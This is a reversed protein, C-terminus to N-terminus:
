GRSGALQTAMWELGEILGKGTDASMGVIHWARDEANMLGFLDRIEDMTVARHVNQLPMGKLEVAQMLIGLASKAEEGRDSDTSDVVFILGDAYKFYYSWLPRMGFNNFERDGIRITEANFGTTAVSQCVLGPFKLQCLIKTKGAYDPGVMLLGIKRERWFSLTTDM